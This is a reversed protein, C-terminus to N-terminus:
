YVFPSEEEENIILLVAFILLPQEYALADSDNVEIQKTKIIVIITNSPMTNMGSGFMITSNRLLNFLSKIRLDVDLIIFFSFALFTNLVRFRSYIRLILILALIKLSKSLQRWSASHVEHM